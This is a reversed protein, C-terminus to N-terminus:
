KDNNKGVTSSNVFKQEMDEDDEVEEYFHAFM